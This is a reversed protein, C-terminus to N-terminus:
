RNLGGNPIVRVPELADNKIETYLMPMVVSVPREAAIDSVQKMLQTKDVYLDHLTTIEDQKIDM